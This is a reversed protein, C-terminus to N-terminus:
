CGRCIKAMPATLTSHGIGGPPLAPHEGAASDGEEWEVGGAATVKFSLTKDKYEAVQATM